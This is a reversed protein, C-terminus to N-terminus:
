LRYGLWAVEVCHRDVFGGCRLVIEASSPQLSILKNPLHFTTLLLTPNPLHLKKMQKELSRPIRARLSPLVMM